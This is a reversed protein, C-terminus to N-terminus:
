LVDPYCELISEAALVRRRRHKTSVVPTDVPNPSQFQQSTAALMRSHRRSLSMPDLTSAGTPPTEPEEHEELAALAASPIRWNRRATGTGYDMAKLRGARILRDLTKRSLGTLSAAQEITLMADGVAAESASVAPPADRGLLARQRHPTALRCYIEAVDGEGDDVCHVVLLVEHWEFRSDVSTALVEGARPLQSLTVQRRLKERGQGRSSILTANMCALIM